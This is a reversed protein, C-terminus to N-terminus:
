TLLSKPIHLIDLPVGAPLAGHAAVPLDMPHRLTMVITVPLMPAVPSACCACTCRVCFAPCNNDPSSENAGVGCTEPVVLSSLGSADAILLALLAIFLARRMRAM